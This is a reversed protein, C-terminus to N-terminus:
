QVGLECGYAIAIAANPDAQVTACADPCLVLKDGDVYFGNATCATADAVQNFTSVPAGMSSYNVQVTALDLTEGPPPQPIAFDCAVKAGSVVSDAISQFVGSYDTVNNSACSHHRLGGTLVALAQYGTGPSVADSGCKTTLIPDSPAHSKSSDAPDKAAM